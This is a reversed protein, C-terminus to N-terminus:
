LCLKFLDHRVKLVNWLMQFDTRCTYILNKCVYICKQGLSGLLTLSPIDKHKAM